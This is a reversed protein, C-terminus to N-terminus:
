GVSHQAQIPRYGKKVGVVLNIGSLSVGGGAVVGYAPDYIEQVTIQFAECRQRSLFIRWQELNTSGGYPNGSGFTLDKGYVPSYNTPSILSSQSPASNYDYAIQVLLKHPSLYIGLLYFYYARQYGQLGALQIWSTTFSMLVPSSGDLYLGPTEQFVQGFTNIYTHLGQFLTSSIAPVNVDTDWQGYYYDYKVTIGSSLTFRVENTGPINVASLVEANKTFAEVGAGIYQTSLDRGLLWIQNGSPSSFEFMLGQPQFVISKQNSCGVTSTIFIPQSYNNNAGTNDPGSGNIYNIASAKFLILKDDMSSGCKLPGTSGQAGISPAVYLTLFDSLEVPTNEILQKSFWLLNKDESTIGWLRDDFLFVSDFAPGNIDELVGGNTYLINNGLIASDSNIDFFSFSDVTPDNIVPATLSTTQYYIPQNVSWRYICIKVPNAIKYTLRLTPGTVIVSNDSGTLTVSVPISPASRFVNGQNDAWEYTIQYFYQQLTMGADTIVDASVEVSDPWVFFDNEVPTYGDYGWLFGGSINLNTGIEATIINSSTLEFTSLNIGTQSYISSVPTNAPLNTGKNVSSILDKILYPIQVQNGNVTAFPLGHVLYGGGNGYALKAIINGNIDALFYTPQFPSQYVFLCYINGDLIFSKSALGVSRLLVTASSVTGTETVTLTDIFHTPISSDYSYNNDEEYLVTLIGADATATINDVTTTTIIATAALVTTLAPSVALTYGNTTNLDYYTAWVIQNVHDATVSMLTAVHSADKTFTSSLALTSSLSVMKIGSASAGNYAIFLSNNLVTADFNLTTSPTYAAAVDTPGTTMTPITTNIALYKLHYAGGVLTTFLIVFYVGLLFVRPIGQTADAGALVTPPVITQGTNSDAITYKYIPTSLSTTTQDTYVTCVFGTSSLAVDVQSQNTSNRVLPFVDLQVPQISGRNFWQGTTSTYAELSNGIATLDTNFTNLLQSSSNPLSTLMGYGNRKQLLGGKTFVSNQMSLFKGLAVQNPDTKTDLGQAFNISVTQKVTM